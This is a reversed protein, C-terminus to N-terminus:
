RAARRMALALAGPVGDTVTVVRANHREALRDRLAVAVANHATAVGGALVIPGHQDDCRARGVLGALAECAEAAIQGAAPDGDGACLSVLPALSAIQAPRRDYAACIVFDRLDEPDASADGGLAHLVAASLDTMPARCEIVELLHRLAQRGIWFGSGEDGLYWGHGGVRRVIRHEAIAVAVSGTGAILVTGDGEDTASAFAVDCDTVLTPVCTLGAAHWVATLWAPPPQDTSGVGAIGLVASCIRDPETDWLADAVATRLSAAAGTPDTLPNGPGGSGRGIVTGAGDCVAIRTSSGGIDGGLYLPGRGGSM